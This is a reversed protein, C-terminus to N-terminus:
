GYYDLLKRRLLEFPLTLSRVRWGEIAAELEGLIQSQSADDTNDVLVVLSNRLLRSLLVDTM